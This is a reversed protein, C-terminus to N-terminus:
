PLRLTQGTKLKGSSRLGNLAAIDVWRKSDNLERAAISRLTDGKKVHYHRVVTKRSQRDKLTSAALLRDDVYELLTLTVTQRTIAGRTRIQDGWGVDNIVFDLGAHDPTRIAGGVRVVPPGGASTGSSLVDLDHLADQLSAGGNFFLGPITLSFPDRGMWPTLAAKRPRSQTQFGGYGGSVTVPDDIAWLDIQRDTDRAYVIIDAFLTRGNITPRPKDHGLAAAVNAVSQQLGSGPLTPM